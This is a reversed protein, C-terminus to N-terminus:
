TLVKMITQAYIINEPEKPAYFISESITTLLINLDYKHEYVLSLDIFFMIYLANLISQM